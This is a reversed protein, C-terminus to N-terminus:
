TRKELFSSFVVLVIPALLLILVIWVSINFVLSNWNIRQIDSRSKKLQGRNGM